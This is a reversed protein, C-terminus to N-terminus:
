RRALTSRRDNDEGWHAPLARVEGRARVTRLSQRIGLEIEDFVNAFYKDIWARTLPAVTVDRASVVALQYTRKLKRLAHTSGPIPALKLLDVGRFFLPIREAAEEKTGGWAEWLRVFVIDQFRTRTGYRDNHWQLFPNVFDFLVDDLDVAIKPKAEGM